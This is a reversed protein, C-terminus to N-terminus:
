EDALVVGIERASDDGTSRDPIVGERRREAGGAPEEAILGPGAPADARGHLCVGARAIISDAGKLVM